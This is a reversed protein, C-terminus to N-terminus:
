AHSRHYADFTKRACDNWDYTAAQARGLAIMRERLVHNTALDQMITAMHSPSDPDFYLAAQGLIEPMSAANSSAVPLGNMMAELPPLGFGECRSPFVYSEARRYLAGLEEDSAHGFFLVHDNLGTSEAETRLRDYFYDSAGVLVLHHETFGRKRFEHFANLLMELNKHPYANGVYLIFPKRLEEVRPTPETDSARVAKTCAEYTVAIERGKMFPFKEQIDKKVSQSVTIVARADRMARAIVRKYAAFKMQFMAPGLKTARATPFRLLILDHITVIFPRRYLFPVNFHPFHMLDLKFKRLWLPYLLQEKWGYWPFEAIAKTFRPNAPVYEDFNAKRLFIVYEDKSDIRELGAILESVYRGLGKGISGYFRADIGIRM